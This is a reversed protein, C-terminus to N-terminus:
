SRWEGLLQGTLSVWLARGLDDGLVFTTQGNHTFTSVSVAAAGDLHVHLPPAKTMTEWAVFLVGTPGELAALLVHAIFRAWLVTWPGPSPLTLAPEERWTPAASHHRSCLRWALLDAHPPVYLEGVRGLGSVAVLSLPWVREGL